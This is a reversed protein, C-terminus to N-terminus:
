SQVREEDRNDMTSHTQKRDPQLLPFMLMWSLGVFSAIMLALVLPYLLLSGPLGPKNASLRVLLQNIRADWPPDFAARFVLDGDGILLNGEPYMDEAHAPLHIATGGTRKLYFTYQTGAENDQPPFQFHVWNNARSVTIEDHQVLTIEGGSELKTLQFQIEGLDDEAIGAAPISIRFLGPFHALLTQGIPDEASLPIVRGDSVPQVIQLPTWLLFGFVLIVVALYTVLPIITPFGCKMM